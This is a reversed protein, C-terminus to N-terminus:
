MVRKEINNKDILGCKMMNEFICCEDGDVVVVVDKRILYDELSMGTEELFGTLVGNSQHDIGGFDPVDFYATEVPRGDKDHNEYIDDGKSYNEKYVLKEYPVEKVKDFDETNCDSYIKFSETNFHVDVDDCGILNILMPRFVDDFVKEAELYSAISYNNGCYEAIAYSLKERFTTLVNFPSRGFSNDYESINVIEEEDDKHREKYWDEDLYYEDRIEEQTMKNKNNKVICVSHM